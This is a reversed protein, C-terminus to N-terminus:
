PNPKAADSVTNSETDSDGGRTEHPQRWSLILLVGIGLILWADAVNSVWPWVDRAGSGPWALGFPLKVGPLFHLFDRVCAYALRDYLNGLGGAILLGISVHAIRDSARTWRAFLYMAVALAVLTFIIFIWRQGAGIGFVAGPNLVLTFQLVSPVVEVPSHPPILNSLRDAALVDARRITVPQDAVNGFALYKSVLDTVLGFAITGFLLAWASPARLTSM